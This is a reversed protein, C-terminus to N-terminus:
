EGSVNGKLFKIDEVVLNAIFVGLLLEFLASFYGGAIVKDWIIFPVMLVVISGLVVNIKKILM